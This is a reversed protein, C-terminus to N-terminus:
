EADKDHTSAIAWAIIALCIVFGAWIAFLTVYARDLHGSAIADLLPWGFFILCLCFLLGLMGPQSLAEKLRKSM